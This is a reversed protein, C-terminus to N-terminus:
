IPRNCTKPGLIRDGMWWRRDNNVVVTYCDGSCAPRQSHIVSM